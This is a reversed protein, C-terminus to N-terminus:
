SEEVPPEEVPPEEVPSEEVPPEEAPSDPRRYRSRSSGRTHKLAKNRYMLRDARSVLGDVDTAPETLSVLGFSVSLRYPRDQTSNFHNFAFEINKVVKEADALNCNLILVFEDGGWRCIVDNKRVSAHIANITNIILEDGMAHGFQDNVKKLGDIDLFCITYNEREPEPGALLDKLRAFGWQRNYVNTMADTSASLELQEEYRRRYSIDVLTALHADKGDIWKILTNKM